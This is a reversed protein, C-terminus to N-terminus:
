LIAPWFPPLSTLCKSGFRHTLMLHIASLIIDNKNPKPIEHTSWYIYTHNHTHTKTLSLRTSKERADATRNINM